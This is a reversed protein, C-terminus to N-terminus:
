PNIGPNIDKIMVTGEPTGNSKWLENGHISDSGTLYVGSHVSTINFATLSDKLLLNGSSTGDTKWFQYKSISADYLGYYIQGSSDSALSNIASYSGSSDANTPLSKVPEIDISTNVDFKYLNYVQESGTESGPFYLVNDVNIM